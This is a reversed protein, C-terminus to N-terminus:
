PGWRWIQVTGGYSTSTTGTPTGIAVGQTRYLVTGVAISTGTHASNFLGTIVTNLTPSPGGLYFSARGCDTLGQTTNDYDPAGALFDPSGGGDVDGDGYLGYMPAGAVSWGLHANAQNSEDTFYPTTNIGSSTGTFLYIKGEATQGNGHYPAGVLVDTYGDGNVDYPGAVSYGFKDGTNQGSITTTTFGTGTSIYVNVAGKAGGGPNYEPAGAVFDDYPTGDGDINDAQALSFGLRSGSSGTLTTVAVIGTASGKFVLVKPPSSDPVGVAFDKYFDHNFNGIGSVSYGLHSNYDPTSFLQFPTM